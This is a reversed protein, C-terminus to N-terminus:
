VSKHDCRENSVVYCRSVEVRSRSSEMAGNLDLLSRIKVLGKTKGLKHSTSRDATKHHMDEICASRHVTQGRDKWNSRHLSRSSCCHVMISIMDAAPFPESKVRLLRGYDALCKESTLIRLGYNALFLSSPLMALRDYLDTSVLLTTVLQHSHPHM